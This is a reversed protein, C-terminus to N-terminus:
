SAFYCYLIEEENINNEIMYDDCKKELIRFNCCREVLEKNATNNYILYYLNRARNNIRFKNLSIWQIQNILINRYKTDDIKNLDITILYRKPIPMM